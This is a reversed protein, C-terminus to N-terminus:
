LKHSNIISTYYDYHYNYIEQAEDSYSKSGNEDDTDAIWMEEEESITGAVKMEDWAANHAMESAVEGPNITVENETDSEEVTLEADKTIDGDIRVIYKAGEFIGEKHGNTCVIFKDTLYEAGGDTKHYYLKINGNKNLKTTKM